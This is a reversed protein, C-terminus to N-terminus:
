EYVSINGALIKPIHFIFSCESGLVLYGQGGSLHFTDIAAVIIVISVSAPLLLERKGRNLLVIVGAALIDAAGEM